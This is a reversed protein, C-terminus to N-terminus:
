RNCLGCSHPCLNKVHDGTDCEGAKAWNACSVDKDNCYGWAAVRAILCAASLFFIRAMAIVLPLLTPKQASSTVGAVVMLIMGFFPACMRRIM